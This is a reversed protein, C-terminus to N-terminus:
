KIIQFFYQPIGITPNAPDNNRVTIVFNGANISDVNVILSAVHANTRTNIAQVIVGSNATCESNTVTIPNRNGIPIIASDTIMGWYANITVTNAIITGSPFPCTIGQGGGRFRLNDTVIHNAVGSTLEIDTTSSIDVTNNDAGIKIGKNGNITVLANSSEILMENDATITCDSGSTIEMNAGITQYQSLSNSSVLIQGLSIMNCTGAVNTQNILVSGPSSMTAGNDGSLIAAGSTLQLSAATPGTDCTMQIVNGNNFNLSNNSLDVTRLFDNITGDATYINNEVTSADRYEILGNVSNRTLLQTNTDNQNLGNALVIGASGITTQGNTGLGNVVDGQQLIYENSGLSTNNSAMFSRDNMVSMINQKPVSSDEYQMTAAEQGFNAVVNFITETGNFCVFGVGPNGSSIFDNNDLQAACGSSIDGWQLQGVNTFHVNNNDVDITRTPDAITGDSLYINEGIGPLSSVPIQKVKDQTGDRVLINLSPNFAATEANDVKITSFHANKWPETQEGPSSNDYWQNVSM